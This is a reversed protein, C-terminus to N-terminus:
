LFTTVERVLGSSLRVVWKKKTFKKVFVWGRRKRWVTSTRNHLTVSSKYELLAAAVRFPGACLEAGMLEGNIYFSLSGALMDVRMGIIDGSALPEAIKVGEDVSDHRLQGNSCSLGWGSPGYTFCGIFPDTSTASYIGVQVSDFYFCRSRRNQYSLEVYYVSGPELSQFTLFSRFYPKDVPPFAKTLTQGSKDLEAYWPSDNPAKWSLLPITAGSSYQQDLISKQRKSM